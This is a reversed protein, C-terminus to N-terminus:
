ASRAVTLTLLTERPLVRVLAEDVDVIAVASEGAPTVDGDPEYTRITAVSRLHPLRAPLAHLWALWRGAPIEEPSLRQDGLAVLAGCDCMATTLTFVPATPRISDAVIRRESPQPDVGLIDVALRRLDDTFAAANVSWLM